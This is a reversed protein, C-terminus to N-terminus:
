MALSFQPGLHFSPQWGDWKLSRLKDRPIQTPETHDRHDKGTLILSIAVQPLRSLGSGARLSSPPAPSEPIGEVSLTAAAPRSPRQAWKRGGRERRGPTPSAGSPRSPTMQRGARLVQCTLAEPVYENLSDTTFDM